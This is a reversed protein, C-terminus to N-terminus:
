GELEDRLKKMEALIDENSQESDVNYDLEDFDECIKDYDDEELPEKEKPMEDTIRWNYDDVNESDVENFDIYSGFYKGKKCGNNETFNKMDNSYRIHIFEKEKPMEDKDTKHEEEVIEYGELLEYGDLEKPSINYQSLETDRLFEESIVENTDADVYRVTISGKIKKCYFVVTKDKNEKNLEVLM